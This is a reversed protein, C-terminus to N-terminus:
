PRRATSEALEIRAVFRVRSMIRTGFAPGRARLMNGEVAIIPFRGGAELGRRDDPQMTGDTYILVDIVSDPHQFALARVKDDLRDLRDDYAVMPPSTGTRALLGHRNILRGDAIVASIRRTNTIDTLPNADLLVLDALKGPEVTGIESEMELARAANITAARLAALPPLGAYVLLRMEETVGLPPFSPYDTGTVILGGADHFRRVFANMAHCIRQVSDAQLRGLAARGSSSHFPYYRQLVALDYGDTCQGYLAEHDHYTVVLTPELWAGRAVMTDILERQWQEDVTLWGSLASLDARTREAFTSRYNITPGTNVVVGDTRFRGSIHSLGSIGARVADLAYYESTSDTPFWTTHGYVALGASRAARIVEIAEGRSAGRIKVQNLGLERFRSFAQALTPVREQAMVQRVIGSIRIRPAVIRGSDAAARLAAYNAELGSAAADRVATVGGALIWGLQAVTDPWNRQWPMFLHVHTDILGPILYKGGAELIRAGPPIQVSAASGVQGIRNGQVIVTTAPSVAGSRVDIVTANRIALSRSSADQSQVPRAGTAALLTIM